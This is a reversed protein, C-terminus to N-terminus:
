GAGLALGTGPELGPIASLLRAVQSAHSVLILALSVGSIGLLVPVVLLLALYGLLRAFRPSREASGTIIHLARETFIFMKTVAFLLVALGVAGSTAESTRNVAALIKGIAVHLLQDGTLAQAGTPLEVSIVPLRGLARLIGLAVVLTPIIAFVTYYTLAA